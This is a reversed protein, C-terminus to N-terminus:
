EDGATLAERVGFVPVREGRSLRLRRKRPLEGARRDWNHWTQRNRDDLGTHRSPPLGILQFPADLVLHLEEDNDGFDDDLPMAVTLTTLSKFGDARLPECWGSRPRLATLVDTGWGPTPSTMKSPDLWLRLERLSPSQGLHHFMAAWRADLARAKEEDYPGTRM